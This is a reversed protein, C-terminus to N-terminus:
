RTSTNAPAPVLPRLPPRRRPLPLPTARQPRQFNRRKTSAMLSRLAQFGDATILGRAVLDWLGREVDTPLRGSASAIDDYFLAGRAALLDLIDRGAGTLRLPQSPAAVTMAALIAMRIRPTCRLAQGGTSRSRGTASAPSSGHSTPAASLPSRRPPLPPPQRGSDAGNAATPSAAGPSTAPCASSTSGPAKTPPSAPPSSTASGPSPPSTSARSSPSPKSSAASARSSPAPRSTSGACSSACSTRRPSPSSRRACATSPTATSAPSCAGTASSTRWRRGAPLPRALVSAKAKSSPSGPPRQRRRLCATREALEAATAPGLCEMHGRLLALRSRRRRGRQRPRAPTPYRAHHLARTSRRSPACTRPPSGSNAGDTTEAIAARGTSVLEDFWQQWDAADEPSRAAGDEDVGFTPAVDPRVAILNLLADHLEEPDRPDPRAEDIVREIADPDLAGLDRSNEPLTRRLTVARARREELPADDLYTYPKSNLIEHALPSPETTDKAHLRIEGAEIRHLVDMLGDIDMAEHLCDHMTQRILPHDPLEIPGTVTRRAASSARSSRPWCTTPRM